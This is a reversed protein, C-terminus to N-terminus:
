LSVVLVIQGSQMATVALRTAFSQLTAHSACAHCSPLKVQFPSAQTQHPPVLGPHMPMGTFPDIAQNPYYADRYPGTQPAPYGYYAAQGHSQGMHDQLPPQRLGDRQQQPFPYGGANGKGM